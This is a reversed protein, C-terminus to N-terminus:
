EDEEISRNFKEDLQIIERRTESYNEVQLRRAKFM